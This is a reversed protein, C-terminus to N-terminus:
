NSNLLRKPRNSAKQILISFRGQHNAGLVQYAFRFTVCQSGDCSRNLTINNATLRSNKSREGFNKLADIAKLLGVNSDEEKDFRLELRELGGNQVM